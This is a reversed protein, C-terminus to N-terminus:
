LLNINIKSTESKKVSSIFTFFDDYEEITYDGSFLTISKEVVLLDGEMYYRVSYQGYPSEISNDPPLKAIKFNGLDYKLVYLSSYPYNIRVDNGRESPKEFDVIPVPENNILMTKGYIKYYNNFDATASVTINDANRSEKSISYDNFTYSGTFINNSIYESIYKEKLQHHGYNFVEFEYGKLNATLRVKADGDYNLKIDYEYRCQVDNPKLAPINILRSDSNKCLLAQRGQISTSIYGFPDNNSTCEIYITDSQLPLTLIVHNFAQYVFNSDLQKGRNESLRILTYYSDIGAYSLLARM